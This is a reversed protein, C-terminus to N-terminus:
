SADESAELSVVRYAFAELEAPSAERARAAALVDAIDIQGSRDLDAYLAGEDPAPAQRQLVLVAVLVSAALAAWGSRRLRHHRLGEHRLEDRRPRAAFHTRAAAEIERDVRATITPLPRDAAKLEDVLSQPLDEFTEDDSVNRSEKGTSRPL